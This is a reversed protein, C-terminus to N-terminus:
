CHPVLYTQWAAREVVAALAEGRGGVVVRAARGSSARVVVVFLLLAAPASLPLLRGHAGTPDATKGSM